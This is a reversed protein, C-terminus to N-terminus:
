EKFFSKDDSEDKDPEMEIGEPGPSTATGVQQDLEIKKELKKGFKVAKKHEKKLNWIRPYFYLSAIIYGLVICSLLVLVLPANSIEWFFLSISIEFSNQLTFIVLLIALILLVIIVAHM